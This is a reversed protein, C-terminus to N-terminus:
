LGYARVPECHACPPPRLQVAARSCAEKLLSHFFQKVALFFSYKTIKTVIDGLQQQVKRVGTYVLVSLTPAHKALESVWQDLISVPTVVVTSGSPFRAKSLSWCRPCVYHKADRPFGVCVSHQTMHCAICRSLAGSESLNGCVCRLGPPRSDSLLTDRLASAVSRVRKAVEERSPTRNLILAITEVTKGLGMEDCLIGGRVDAVPESLRLRPVGHYLQGLLPNVHLSGALSIVADACQAELLRVLQEGYGQQEVRVAWQVARVQYPRLTPVLARHQVKPREDPEAPLRRIEHYLRLPNFGVRARLSEVVPQLPCAPFLALLVDALALQLAESAVHTDFGEPATTRFALKLAWWGHQVCITAVVARTTLCLGFRQCFEHSAWPRRQEGDYFAQFGALDVPYQLANSSVAVFNYLTRSYGCLARVTYEGLPLRGNGETGFSIPYPVLPAPLVVADDENSVLDIDVARM